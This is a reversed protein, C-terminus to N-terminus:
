ANVRLWDMIPRNHSDAWGGEHHRRCLCVVRDRATVRPTGIKNGAHHRDIPGSCPGAEPDIDLARCGHREPAAREDRETVAWYVAQAEAPTQRHPRVKVTPATLSM